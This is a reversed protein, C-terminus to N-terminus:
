ITMNYTMPIQLVSCVLEGYGYSHSLWCCKKHFSIEVNQEQRTFWCSLGNKLVFKGSKIRSKGNEKSWHLLIKNKGFVETKSKCNTINRVPFIENGLRNNLPV